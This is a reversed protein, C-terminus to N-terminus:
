LAAQRAWDIRIDILATAPTRSSTATPLIPFGTFFRFPGAATVPFSRRVITMPRHISRSTATLLHWPCRIVDGRAHGPTLLGALMVWLQQNGEHAPDVTTDLMAKLGSFYAPRQNQEAGRSAPRGPDAGNPTARRKAPRVGWLRAAEVCREVGQDCGVEGMVRRPPRQSMSYSSPQAM